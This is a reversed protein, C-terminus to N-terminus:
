WITQDYLKEGDIVVGKILARGSRPVSLIIELPALAEEGGAPRRQALNELRKAAGPSAFYQEIGYDVTRFGRAVTEPCDGWAVRGRLTVRGQAFGDAPMAPGARVARWEGGTEELTVFIAEHRSYCRGALIDGELRNIAYGLTAYHGLFLSRPDVPETVLTIETGGHLDRAYLAVMLAIVAIMGTAVLAIRVRRSM